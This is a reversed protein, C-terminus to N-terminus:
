NKEWGYIDALKIGFILTSYPLIKNYGTAGYGATYPIVTTVSDGIHMSTLAVQFGTIMENPKCRFISDGTTEITDGEITTLIYKVDVTSNNMPSLNQQTLARNNHWQMLITTNKDWVPTVHEYQKNGDITAAEAQEIYELNQNRWDTYDRYTKEDDSLCSSLSLLVAPLALFGFNKITM